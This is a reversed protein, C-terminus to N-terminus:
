IYKQWPKFKNEVLKLHVKEKFDNNVIALGFYFLDITCDIKEDAKITEWSENMGSSWYIDDFVLISNKALKPKLMEFYDLTAEKRHNGDIFAFEVKNIKHVVESLTEDFNGKVFEVNSLNLSRSVNKAVIISEPNGELSYGKAKKAGSALYATSIGLSSGLEIFSSPNIHQVIKFLIQCQWKSSLSTKAIDSIKRKQIGTHKRSGAGLDIM